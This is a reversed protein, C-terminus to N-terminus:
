QTVQGIFKGTANWIRGARQPYKVLRFLWELGLIRFIKPARTQHGSLFDFSGGVGMAMKIDTNKELFKKNEAIFFEQKPAGLAVFLVNAQSSKIQSLINPITKENVFDDCADVVQPYKKQLFQPSGKEGGLLFIKINKEDKTNELFKRFVDSGCIPKKLPSPYFKRFFAYFMLSYATIFFKWLMFKGEVHSIESLGSAWLIGNGDALSLDAEQLIKQFKKGKETKEQSAVIMEPNPTYIKQLSIEPNEPIKNMIELVKEESIKHFPIGKVFFKGSIELESKKNKESKKARICLNRKKDSYFIKQIEFGAEELLQTLYEQSFSYYYRPTKQTGWPILFDRNSFLPNFVSRLFAEKKQPEYKKQEWLNWVTLVIEGGSKLIKQIDRLAKKRDEHQSLHHFSAVAWIEDFFNDSFEPRLDLFGGISFNLSNEPFEKLNERAHNLFNEAVDRAFYEGSFDKEALFKRLRGNGCGIDLVRFKESSQYATNSASENKECIIDSTVNGRFNELSQHEEHTDSDINELRPDRINKIESYNSFFNRSSSHHTYKSHRLSHYSTKETLQDFEPWKSHRTQSFDGAFSNYAEPLFKEAQFPSLFFKM